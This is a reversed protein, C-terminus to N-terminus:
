NKSKKSSFYNDYHSLREVIMNTVGDGTITAGSIADVKNDDKDTSNNNNKQVTVGVLKNESNYIKEGVFREKFWSQTIEAGLGPTEGAHDLSIGKVTNFDDKISIYGWIANWLGAGRLPVIYFKENNLEAVFLPFNQEAVPKKMESKIDIDFAKVGENVSGDSKIVIQEKIVEDFKAQAEERSIGEVGVTSLINQMKENRINLSQIPQLSTAAVSLLVGVIVILTITFILTYKNSNKDM